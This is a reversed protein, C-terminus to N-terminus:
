ITKFRHRNIGLKTTKSELAQRPVALRAAAGYPGSNRGQSEALAAEIMEREREILTTVLPVTMGNSEPSERKLWSEDVSFTDGDCLIVTREIVNQLERINGPWEYDQFMELTKKDIKRIRRGIKKGYREILYEALM